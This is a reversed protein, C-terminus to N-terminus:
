SQRNRRATHALLTGIAMGTVCILIGVNGGIAEKYNTGGIAWSVLVFFLAMASVVILGIGYLFADDLKQPQISTM